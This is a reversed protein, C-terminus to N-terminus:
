CRTRSSPPAKGGSRERAVKSEWFGVSAKAGGGETAGKEEAAVKHEYPNFTLKFSISAREGVKHKFAYEWAHPGGRGVDPPAPVETTTPPDRQVM